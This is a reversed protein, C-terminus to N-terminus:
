SFVVLLKLRDASHQLDNWDISFLGDLTFVHEYSDSNKQHVKYVQTKGNAYKLLFGPIDVQMRTNTGDKPNIEVFYHNRHTKDQSKGPGFLLRFPSPPNPGKHGINNQTPCEYFAYTDGQGVSKLQRQCIPCHPNQSSNM